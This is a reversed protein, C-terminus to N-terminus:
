RDAEKGILQNLRECVRDIHVSEFIADVFRDIAEDLRDIAGVITNEVRKKYEANKDM